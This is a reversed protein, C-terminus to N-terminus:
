TSPLRRCGVQTTRHRCSECCTLPRMAFASTSPAHEIRSNTFDDQNKATTLELFCIRNLHKKQIHNYIITDNHEEYVLKSHCKNGLVRPLTVNPLQGYARVPEHTSSPGMPIGEMTPHELAVDVVM